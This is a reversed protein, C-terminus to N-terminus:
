LKDIMLDTLKGKGGMGKNEKRFKRLATGMRKQVHGVCEKKVVSVGNNDSNYVDKM